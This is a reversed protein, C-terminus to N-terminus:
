GVNIEIADVCGGDERFGRRLHGFDDAFRLGYSKTKGNAESEQLYM